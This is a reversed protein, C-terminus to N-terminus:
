YYIFVKQVNRVNLEVRVKIWILLVRAFCFDASSTMSLNVILIFSGWNPHHRSKRKSCMFVTWSCLRISLIITSRVVVSGPDSRSLYSVRGFESNTSMWKLGMIVIIPVYISTYLKPDFLRMANTSVLHNSWILSSLHLIWFANSFSWNKAWFTLTRSRTSMSRVSRTSFNTCAANIQWRSM